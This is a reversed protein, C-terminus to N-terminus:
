DGSFSSLMRPGVRFAIPKLGSEGFGTQMRRASISLIM